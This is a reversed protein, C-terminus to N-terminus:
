FGGHNLIEEYNRGLRDINKIYLLDGARLRKVLGQYSPRQFDKGSMKDLTRCIKTSFFFHGGGFNGKAVPV